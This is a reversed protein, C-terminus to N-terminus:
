RATICILTEYKRGAKLHIECHEYQCKFINALILGFEDLFGHRFQMTNSPTLKAKKLMCTATGDAFNYSYKEGLNKAIMELAKESAGSFQMTFGRYLIENHEKM